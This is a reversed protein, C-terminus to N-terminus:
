SAGGEAARKSGHDAIAISTLLKPAVELMESLGCMIIAADEDDFGIEFNENSCVYDAGLLALGAAKTVAAAYRLLAREPTTDSGHSDTDDVYVGASLIRMIQSRLSDSDESALVKKELRRQREHAVQEESKPHSAFPIGAKAYSAKVKATEAAEEADLAADVTPAAEIGAREAAEKIRTVPKEARKKPARTGAIKKKIM